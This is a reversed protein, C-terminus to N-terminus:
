DGTERRFSSESAALAGRAFELARPLDTPISAEADGPRGRYLVMLTLVEPRNRFLDILISQNVRYVERM